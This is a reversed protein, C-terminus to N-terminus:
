PQQEHTGRLLFETFDQEPVRRLKGIRIVKDGHAKEFRKLLEFSQSRGIKFITQIEDPGIWNM